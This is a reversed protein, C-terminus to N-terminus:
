LYKYMEGLDYLVNIIDQFVKEKQKCLHEIQQQYVNFLDNKKRKGNQQCKLNQIQIHIDALRQQILDEMNPIIHDM